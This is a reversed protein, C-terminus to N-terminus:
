SLAPEFTVLGCLLLHAVASDYEERDKATAPPLVEREVFERLKRASMGTVAYNWMWYAQESIGTIEQGLGLWNGIMKYVGKDPDVGLSHGVPVLRIRDMDVFGDLPGYAIVGLRGLQEILAPYNLGKASCFSKFDDLPLPTRLTLLTEAMETPFTIIESGRRIAPQQVHGGSGKVTVDGLYTGILTIVEPQPM